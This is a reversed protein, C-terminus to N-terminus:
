KIEFDFTINVKNDKILGNRVDNKGKWFVLPNLKYTGKEGNILANKKLNNISNTLQQISIDLFTVLEKREAASLVVKGTNYEAMICFKTLVKIDVVSKLKFFGAMNEIFTMYFEDQNVNISYTKSSVLVEGTEKDVHTTENKLYKKETM